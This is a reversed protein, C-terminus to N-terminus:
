DDSGPGSSDGSHNNDDGHCVADWQEDGIWAADALEM